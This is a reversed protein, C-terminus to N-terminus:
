TQANLYNCPTTNVDLAALFPRAYKYQKIVPYINDSYIGLFYIAQDFSFHGCLKALHQCCRGM